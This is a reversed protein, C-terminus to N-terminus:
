SAVTDDDAALSGRVAAVYFRRDRHDRPVEGVSRRLTAYISRAAARDGAALRAEAIELLSDRVADAVSGTAKAAALATAADPTGIRGLGRAAAVALPETGADRGGLLGALLPVVAADRLDALSSIMGFVLPRPATEIAKRLAACAEPGGIRELVYRAMHSNDADHLLVAVAPVSAATAIMSLKRCAHDKAARFAAAGVVGALRKELDARLAADAHAAVVAADIPALPKADGGWDYNALATFAADLTKPDIAM